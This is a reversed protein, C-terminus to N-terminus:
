PGGAPRVARPEPLPSGTRGAEGLCQLVEQRGSSNSYLFSVRGDPDIRELEVFPSGCRGWREYALDQLPTNGGACGGLVIVVLAALARSLQPAM